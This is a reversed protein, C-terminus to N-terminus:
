KLTDEIESTIDTIAKIFPINDNKNKERQYRIAIEILVMYYIEKDSIRTKYTQFYANLADNITQAAKRYVEEEDRNIKIPIDMDYIHLRINLKDETM